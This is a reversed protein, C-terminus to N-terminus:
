HKYLGKLLTLTVPAGPTAGTAPFGPRVMPMMPAGPAGTKCLSLRFPFLSLSVCHRGDSPHSPWWFPESDMLTWYHGSQNLSMVLGYQVPPRVMSYTPYTGMFPPVGM